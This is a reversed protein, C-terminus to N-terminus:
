PLLRTFRHRCRATIEYMCGSLYGHPIPVNGSKVVLSLEGVAKLCREHFKVGNEDLTGCDLSARLNHLVDLVQHEIDEAQETELYPATRRKRLYFRQQDKAVDLCTSDLGATALKNELRETKGRDPYPQIWDIIKAQLQNRSVRKEKWKEMGYEATDKALARLDNYISRVMDPDYPQGLKHLVEALAKQNLNSIDGDNIVDWCANTLWYGSDNGKESKFAGIKEGVQGLLNGFPVYSMARHEHGHKRTLVELDSSFQRCTVIRFWSFENYRDRSLSNELLSTGLGDPKRASKQRECLRAVTWLQDPHEAKVQVFEVIRAGELEWLLLIDDHTECWVEILNEDRLMEIYFRAAVDDQYAFGQRAYVGGMDTPIAEFVSPLTIKTGM